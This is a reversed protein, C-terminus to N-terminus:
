EGSYQVEKSVPLSSSTYEYYVFISEDTVLSYTILDGERTEIVPKKYHKVIYSFEKPDSVEVVPLSGSSVVNGKVITSSSVIEKLKPVIKKRSSVVQYTMLLLFVSSLLTSVLFYKRADGVYLTYLGLSKIYNAKSITYKDKYEKELGDFSITLKNKELDMLITIVPKLTYTLAKGNEYTVKTTYSPVITYSFKNTKLNVEKDLISAYKYAKSTNVVINSPIETGLAYAPDILYEEKSWEEIYIIEPISYTTEIKEVRGLRTNNYVVINYIISMNIFKVLNLYVESYPVEESYGYALSPEVVVVHNTSASLRAYEEVIFQKVLLPERFAQVFGISSATFIALAVVLLVKNYKKITQKLSNKINYRRKKNM